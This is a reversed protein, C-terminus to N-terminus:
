VTNAPNAEVEFCGEDAAQLTGYGYVMWFVTGEGSASTDWTGTWTNPITNYTLSITDTHSAGTQDKYTLIATASSPQTTTGDSAAFAATITAINKRVIITM